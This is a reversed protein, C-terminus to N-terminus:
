GALRRQVGHDPVRVRADSRWGARHGSRDLTVGQGLAENHTRTKGAKITVPNSKLRNGTNGSWESAYGTARYLIPWDYPGLDTITYRGNADAVVESRALGEGAPDDGM